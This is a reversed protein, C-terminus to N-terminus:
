NYLDIGDDIILEGDVTVDLHKFQLTMPWIMKIPNDKDANIVTVTETGIYPNANVTTDPENEWGNCWMNGGNPSKVTNNCRGNGDTDNFRECACKKWDNTDDTMM